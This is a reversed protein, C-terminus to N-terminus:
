VVPSLVQFTIGWMLTELIVDFSWRKDGPVSTTQCCHAIGEGKSGEVGGCICSVHFFNSVNTRSKKRWVEVRGVKILPRCPCVDKEVINVVNFYFTLLPFVNFM